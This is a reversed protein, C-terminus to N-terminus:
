SGEKPTNTDQTLAVTPLEKLATKQVNWTDHGEIRWYYYVFGDSQKAYHGEVIFTESEGDLFDVVSEPTPFENLARQWIKSM